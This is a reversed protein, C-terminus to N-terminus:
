NSLEPIVDSKLSVLPCVGYLNDYSAFSMSLAGNVYCISSANFTNPSAFWWNQESKVYMNNEDSKLINYATYFGYDNDYASTGFAYEYGSVSSPFWKCNLQQYGSTERKSHYANYSKVYMEISPTGIVFDAKNVDKYNIWKSEDCLWLVGKENNLNIIGDNDKWQPNMQKMRVLAMESSASETINLATTTVQDAKLYVTGAPGFEGCFDIYFLRYIANASTYNTVVKGYYGPATEPTVTVTQGGVKINVTEVVPTPTITQEIDESLESIIESKLSVIPSVYLIDMYSSGSIKSDLGACCLFPDNDWPQWACPSALVIGNEEVYMNNEDEVIQVFHTYDENNAGSAYMYGKTNGSLTLDCWKYKVLEYGNTGKRSHYQNYSDIYMEIGPSGMVGDAKSTNKYDSWKTEDCLYLTAQENRLDTKGDRVAWEPNMQKM